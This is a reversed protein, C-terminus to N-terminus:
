LLCVRGQNVMYEEQGCEEGGGGMKSSTNCFMTERDARPITWSWAVVSM